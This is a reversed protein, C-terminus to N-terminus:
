LTEKHTAKTKKMNNNKIYKYIRQDKVKLIRAIEAPKAGQSYLRNIDDKEEKTIYKYKSKVQLLAVMDNLSSLKKYMNCLLITILVFNVTCWVFLIMLMRTIEISM